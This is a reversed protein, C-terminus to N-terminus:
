GAYSTRVFCTEALSAASYRCVLIYQSSNTSITPKDPPQLLLSRLVAAFCAESYRSIVDQETPQDEGDRHRGARGQAIRRLKRFPEVGSSCSFLGVSGHCAFSLRILQLQKVQHLLTLRLRDYRHDAVNAHRGTKFCSGAPQNCRLLQGHLITFTTVTGLLSVDKRQSRKSM